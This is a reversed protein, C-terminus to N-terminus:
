PFMFIFLANSYFLLLNIFIFLIVFINTSNTISEGVFSKAVRLLIEYEVESVIESEIEKITIRAITEALALYDRELACLGKELRLLITLLGKIIQRHILKAM